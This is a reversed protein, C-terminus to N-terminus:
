EGKGHYVQKTSASASYLTKTKEHLGMRRRPKSLQARGPHPQEKSSIRHGILRSARGVVFPLRLDLLDAESAAIHEKYERVAHRAGLIAGAGAPGGVASAGCGCVPLTSPDLLSADFAPLRELDVGSCDVPGHETATRALGGVDIRPRSAVQPLAPLDLPGTVIAPLGDDDVGAITPTAETASFACRSRAGMEPAAADELGFVRGGKGPGELTSDPASVFVRAANTALTGGIVNVMDIVVLCIRRLAVAYSEAMRTMAPRVDVALV